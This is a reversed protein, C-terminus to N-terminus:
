SSTDSAIHMVATYKCLIINSYLLNTGLTQILNNHVQINGYCSNGYSSKSFFITNLWVKLKGDLAVSILQVIGSTRPTFVLASVTRDHDMM